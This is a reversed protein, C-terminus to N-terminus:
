RAQEARSHPRHRARGDRRLKLQRPARGRPLRSNTPRGNAEAGGSATLCCNSRAGGPRGCARRPRAAARARAAAFAAAERGDGRPATPRASRRAWGPDPTGPRFRGAGARTNLWAFPTAAELYVPPRVRATSCRPAHAAARFRRCSWGHGCGARRPARGARACRPSSPRRGTRARDARVPGGRRWEDRISPPTQVGAAAHAGRLDVVRTRTRDLGRRPDTGVYAIRGDRVPWRRRGSRTRRPHLGGSRASGPRGPRRACRRPRLSLCCAGVRSADASRWWPPRRFSRAFRTM